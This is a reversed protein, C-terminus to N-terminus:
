RPGPPRSSGPRPPSLAVGPSTRRYEPPLSTALCRTIPPRPSRRSSGDCRPPTCAPSAGRGVWELEGSSSNMSTSFRGSSTCSLTSVHASGRSRGDELVVEASRPMGPLRSATSPRRSRSSEPVMLAVSAMTWSSSAWIVSRRSRLSIAAMREERRGASLVSSLKSVEGELGGDVAALDQVQVFQGEYLPVLVYDKEARGADALGM